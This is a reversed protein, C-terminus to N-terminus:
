KSVGIFMDRDVREWAGSGSESRNSDNQRGVTNTSANPVASSDQNKTLDIIIPDVLRHMRGPM